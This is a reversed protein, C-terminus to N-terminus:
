LIPIGHLDDRDAQRDGLVLVEQGDKTIIKLPDSTEFTGAMRPVRKGAVFRKGARLHEILAQRNLLIIDSWIPGRRLFARVWAVQGDEQYHVAEVVGDYKPRAM